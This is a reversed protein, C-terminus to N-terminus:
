VLAQAADWTLKVGIGFTIVLIIAYFRNADVRRVLWVGAFTSLVAVPILALSVPDNLTAAHVAGTWTKNNSCFRRASPLLMNFM